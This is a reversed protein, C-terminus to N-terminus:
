FLNKVGSWLNGWFGTGSGTMTGFTGGPKYESIDIGYADAIDEVKYGYPDVSSQITKIPVNQSMLNEITKALTDTIKSEREQEPSIGQYLFKDASGINNPDIGAARLKRIEQDTYGGGAGEGSVLKNYQALKTKYELDAMKKAEAQASKSLGKVKKELEKTSMAKAPKGSLQLYMDKLSQKYADSKAKEAEEKAKKETYKSAKQIAQEYTDAYSIGAKGGTQAILDQIQARQQNAINYKNSADTRLSDLVSQAALMNESLGSLERSTLDRARGVQKGILNISAGTGGMARDNQGELASTTTRLAQNSKNIMQQISQVNQTASQIEPSKMYHDYLGFPDSLNPKAVPNTVAQQINPASYVSEATQPQVISPTQYETM